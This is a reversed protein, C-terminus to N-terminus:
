RRGEEGRIAGQGPVQRAGLTGYLHILLAHRIFESVSRDQDLAADQVARLLSENLHLKVAETIKEYTM